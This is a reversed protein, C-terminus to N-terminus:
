RLEFPDIAEPLGGDVWTQFWHATQLRNSDSGYIGFHTAKVVEGDEVVDDYQYLVATRGGVNGSIPMADPNVELGVVDQLKPGVLQVHLARALAATAANPMIDDDIVEQVLVDRHGDLVQSAWNLADAREVATQLLPFFRDMDAPLMEPPRMVEALSAFTRSRQLMTSVRGGPVILYGTTLNPDQALVQAGIVGGMSVGSYAIKTVEFDVHGDGDADFGARLAAALQLKEWAGLRYNDRMIRVKISFDDSDIGAFGLVHALDGDPAGPHDGHFPADAAVVTVGISTLPDAERHAEYRNGSLGHGFIVTPYPGSVGEGPLWITTPLDYTGFSTPTEDAGLFGDAGLVDTCTLTAECRTSDGEHVCDGARVLTPHAALLLQKVAEDQAGISQTVFVVGASVDDRKLGTVDLARTWTEGLISPANELDGTIAADLDVSRWVAGGETDVLDHTAIATYATAPALPFLPELIATMGQDTWSIEVPVDAGDDLRVFRLSSAFSAPDVPATFALSIGATTGFGDLEDLAEILDYGDPLWANLQGRAADGLRVRLGTETSPDPESHFLDPFTDFHVNPAYAARTAGAPPAYSPSEETGSSCAALLLLVPLCARM